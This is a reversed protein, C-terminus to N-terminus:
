LGDGKDPHSGLALSSTDLTVRAKSTQRRPHLAIRPEEQNCPPSSPCRRLAERHQPSAASPSEAGGHLCHWIQYNAM